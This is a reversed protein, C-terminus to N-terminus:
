GTRGMWACQMPVEVMGPSWSTVGPSPPWRHLHTVCIVQAHEALDALKRGLALATTGGVGTDVEDFVLTEGAETRAALRIALVLRSLEGGSLAESRTM